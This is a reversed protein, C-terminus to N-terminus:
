CRCLVVVVVVVFGNAIFVLDATAPQGVIALLALRTVVILADTHVRMADIPPLTGRRCWCLLLVLVVAVAILLPPASDGSPTCTNKSLAVFVNRLHFRFPCFFRM